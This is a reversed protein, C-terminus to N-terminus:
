SISQGLNNLIPDALWDAKQFAIQELHKCIALSLLSVVTCYCHASQEKLM